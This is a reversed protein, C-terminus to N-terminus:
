CYYPMPADLGRWSEMVIRYEGDYAQFRDYIDMSTRVKKSNTYHRVVKAFLEEPREFLNVQFSEECVTRGMHYGGEAETWHSERAYVNIWVYDGYEHHYRYHSKRAEYSCEIGMGDGDCHVFLENDCVQYANAISGCVPCYEQHHLTKKISDWDYSKYDKCNIIGEELCKKFEKGNFCVATCNNCNTM